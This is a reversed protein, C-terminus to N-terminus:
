WEPRARGVPLGVLEPAGGAYSGGFPDNVNPYVRQAGALLPDLAPRHGSLRYRLYVFSSAEEFGGTRQWRAAAGMRLQSSVAYELNAFVSGTLGSSRAGPLESSFVDPAAAAQAAIQAQFDPRTPFVPAAATRFGQWGVAGMGRFTWDGWQARYEGQVVGSLSQAPSFYGGHGFTFGGANRQHGNYRLDVGVTVSQGPQRLVAYFAGGGLEWRTNNVVNNGRIAHLAGGGYFGLRDTALYELQARGGTRTVGGWFASGGAQRYGAYSLMSDTVASREATLRLRLRETIQPVVELMGTYTPRAFGIPTSGIEARLNQRTYTMRLAAGDSSARPAAFAPTAFQPQRFVPNTGFRQQSEFDSGLRGSQLAVMDVGVTMRGGLGPVPASVELPTVLTTLRSTGPTGGRGQFQTGAQLWVAAEDRARILEQAIQATLPDNLRAAAAAGIGPRMAQTAASAAAVEGDARLEALRRAAATEVLRLTGARDDRARLLRAEALILRVDNPHFFAGEILAAQARAFDREAIAVDVLAARAEVDRPNRELVEEIVRRADAARNQSVLLRVLALNAATTAPAAGRTAIRTALANEAAGPEGAALRMDMLAAAEGDLVADFERRDEESLQAGAMLGATLERALDPRRVDTLAGALQIRARVSLPNNAQVALRAASVVAARQDLRGLARIVAPALLGGPDRQGAMSQLAQLAGLQRAGAADELRRVEFERRAQAALTNMDASRLRVPVREFLAVADGFRGDDMALLAAAMGFEATSRGELGRELTRAEEIDGRSKLRRILDVVPWPTSDDLAIAARLQQISQEPHDMRRAGEVLAAARASRAGPAPQIGTERQLSEAEAFRAQRTLAILLGQLADSQRPRLALANRFRREAAAFDGRQLAIQGLVLEGQVRDDGRLAAARRALRDARDLDGRELANWAGLAPGVVFGGRRPPTTLDGVSREFEERREPALAIAQALLERAEPYRNQIKSVIARGVLAEADTPDLELARTFATDAAAPRQAEVQQWGQTREVQAPTPATRVLWADLEPDAGPFLQRYVGLREMTEPTNSSWLLAQRWPTRVSQRMGPRASLDRLRDIGAARTEERYTLLEALVVALQADQPNSAVRQGLDRLALGYGQESSAALVQYYEPAIALPVVGNRALQRYRQVAETQRGASALQRAAALTGADDTLLRSMEAARQLRPDGPAVRRLTVLHRRAVDSQRALSAAEVAAALADVNEPEVALVRELSQVARQPENEALWFRAQELLAATAARGGGPRAAGVDPLTGVPMSQATGPAAQPVLASPQAWADTALLAMPVLVLFRTVWVQDALSFGAHLPGMACSARLTTRGLGSAADSLLRQKM